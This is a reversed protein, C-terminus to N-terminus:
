RILGFDQAVRDSTRSSAKRPEAGNKDRAARPPGQPAVTLSRTITREGTLNEKASAAIKRSESRAPATLLDINEWGSELAGRPEDARAVPGSSDPTGVPLHRRSSLV